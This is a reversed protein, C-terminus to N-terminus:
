PGQVSVVAIAALAANAFTLSVGLLSSFVRPGAGGVVVVRATEAAAPSPSSAASVAAEESRVSDVTGAQGLASRLICEALM